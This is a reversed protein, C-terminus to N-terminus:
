TLALHSKILDILDSQSPGQDGQTSDFLQLYLIVHDILMQSFIYLTLFSFFILALFGPHHCVRTVGASLAPLHWLIM